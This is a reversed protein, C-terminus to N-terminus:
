VKEDFSVSACTADTLESLQGLPQGGVCSYLVFGLEGMQAQEYRIELALNSRLM